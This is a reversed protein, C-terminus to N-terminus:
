TLQERSVRQQESGNSDFSRGSHASTATSSTAVVSDYHFVTDEYRSQRLAYCFCFQLSEKSRDTDNLYSLHKSVKNARKVDKITPKLGVLLRALGLNPKEFVLRASSGFSFGGDCVIIM